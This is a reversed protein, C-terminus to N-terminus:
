LAQYKRFEHIAFRDMSLNEPLADLPFFRAERSEERDAVPPASPADGVFFANVFHVEDGNPYRHYMQEGSIVRWLALDGAELGVEERLERRATEELSAGPEMIGGPLGWLGDDARRQLLISGDRDQLIVAAGVLILPRSGVLARLERVYGARM